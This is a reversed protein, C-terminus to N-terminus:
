SVALRIPRLFDELARTVLEPEEVTSSHGGYPLEVWRAGSIRDATGRARPRAIAKDEKGWIVLTPCHIRPLLNEVGDRSVVSDLAWRSREQDLAMFQDAIDRRQPARAPDRLFTRGFMIKMIAGLLVRRGLVRTILEMAAYKPINLRPEPDAATEMLTLSRILDPRRAALRIGVFGGMSLGVFHCPAVGLKEILAAADDALVDMSYRSTGGTSKGQGRHDYSICRYRERLRAVQPEFLRTDWLLGHSFVIPEGRGGTDEYYIEAGAVSLM